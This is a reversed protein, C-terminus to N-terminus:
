QVLLLGFFAQLMIYSGKARTWVLVLALNIVSMLKRPRGRGIQSPPIPRIKGDGSYPSHRKWLSHFPQLIRNFSEYDLGTITIMAQNSGSQYLRNWSTNERIPDLLACRPLRRDRRRVGEITLYKRFKKKKMRDILLLLLMSSLRTGLNLRILLIIADDLEM